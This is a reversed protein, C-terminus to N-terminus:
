AFSPLSIEKPGIVMVSSAYKENDTNTKPNFENQSDFDEETEDHVVNGNQVIRFGNLESIHSNNDSESATSAYAIWSKDMSASNNGKAFKDFSFNMEYDGTKNFNGQNHTNQYPNKRLQQNPHFHFNSVQSFHRSPNNNHRFAPGHFKQISSFHFDQSEYSYKKFKKTQFSFHPLEFDRIQPEMTATM